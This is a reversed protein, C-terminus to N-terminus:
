CRSSSNHPQLSILLIIRPYPLSSDLRHSPVPVIVFAIVSLLEKSIPKFPYYLNQKTELTRRKVRSRSNWQPMCLHQSHLRPPTSNAIYKCDNANGNACRIQSIKNTDTHETTVSMM